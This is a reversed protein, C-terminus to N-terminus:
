RVGSGRACNSSCKRRRRAAERLHLPLEEIAHIRPSRAAAEILEDELDEELTQRVLAALRQWADIFVQPEPPMTVKVRRLALANQMEGLQLLENDLDGLSVILAEIAAAIAEASADKAAVAAEFAEVAAQTRAEELQAEQDELRRAFDAAERQALVIRAEAEVRRDELESLAAEHAAKRTQVEDLATRLKELDRELKELDTTV